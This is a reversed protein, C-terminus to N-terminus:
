RIVIWYPPLLAIEGEGVSEWARVVAPVRAALLSHLLTGALDGRTVEEIQEILSRAGPFVVRKPDVEAAIGAERKARAVAADLGGLEDVLRVERAATGLFVRGQGVADVAERPLGRGSSVRSLFEEYEAAVLERIRERQEGTLARSSALLTAHRGRAFVETGIELKEFLRGLTVRQLYVGISGTQTAPQAVIADAASAVYYGGSAAADGMSVVVPKQKKVARLERWIEDSALPSGGPSNVRLVIARVEEDDAADRLAKVIADAEFVGARPVRGRSQEITGDGFVLGIAPGDRLGVERPDVEAYDSLEVEEAGEFEALDLLEARDAIGDALDAAVYEEPTGPSADVLARVADPTLERGAAIGAVMQEYLGDILEDISKRAVDSLEREALIEPASKYSGIREYEVAIGGKALLGGLTLVEGAIGAVPGLYGPVVYIREAASALYLERTANLRALDLLAIVTKGTARLRTIADRLEQIRALGLDLGRVQVIVGVIRGDAGAKDLQLILTPLAPGRATFQAYWDTPPAEELEGSLEVVLVGRDPISPGGGFWALAIFIALLLVVAIAVIRLM